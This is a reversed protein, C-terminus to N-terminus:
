ARRASYKHTLPYGLEKQIARVKKWDILRSADFYARPNLYLLDAIARERTAKRVGNEKTVIGAPQYLFADALKRAYYHHQGITFRRTQAGLLTVAPIQQQIVGEEALITEASVYAYGHMAKLGLLLPDIEAIPKIAYFGKHIRTLLGDNVYRKITTYLTNKNTIHWLNALDDTHFVVEGLRALEAFRNLNKIKGAKKRLLGTSM